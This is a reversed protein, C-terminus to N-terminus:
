HIGLWGRKVGCGPCYKLYAFRQEYKKLEKKNRVSRTPCLVSKIVQSM